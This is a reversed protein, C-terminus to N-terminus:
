SSASNADTHQRAYVQRDQQTWQQGANSDGLDVGFVSLCLDMVDVIRPMQSNPLRGRDVNNSTILGALSDDQFLSGHSGGGHTSSEAIAFEAGPRATVWIAARLGSFAGEIRELPNPYVGEILEGQDSFSLDLASVEGSIAWRNGFADTAVMGQVPANSAVRSFSMRGRDSTLITHTRQGRSDPEDVIVQDVQACELLRQVIRERNAQHNGKSYIAASRMNPCILLDADDDRNFGVASQGEIFEGLVEDLRGVDPGDVGPETQGHDGVILIAVDEDVADWGGLHHVFTGLFEDFAVIRREAAVELGEVHADDDNLPFYALTFEPLCQKEAMALVCAASAEDHFGYRNFIGSAPIQIEGSGEPLADVFDGLRLYRPGRVDAGLRGALLRLGLPTDRSHVHPGRFWMYNIVASDIGFAHLHEYILPERLLEFNMRDGFDVVYQHLGEQFILKRDDGFYEAQNTVPNFWSAGEIGHTAPYAGTAISCTAAPTISPFISCCKSLVGGRDLLTQINPLKGERVWRSVVKEMMADVVFLVCKSPM